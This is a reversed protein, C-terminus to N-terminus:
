QITIVTLGSWEHMWENLRTSANFLQIWIGANCQTDISCPCCSGWKKETLRKGTTVCAVLLYVCQFCLVIKTNDLPHPHPALRVYNVTPQWQQTHPIYNHDPPHLRDLRNKYQGRLSPRSLHTNCHSRFSLSSPFSLCLDHIHLTLNLLFFM